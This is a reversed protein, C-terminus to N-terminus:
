FRVVAYRGGYPQYYIGGCRWVVYGYRNVRVCGGPLAGIYAGTRVIRRAAVGPYARGYPRGRVVTKKYVGGRPGRVVTRKYTGGPRRVVTRSYRAAEASQVLTGHQMIRGINGDVLCGAAFAFCALGIRLLSLRSMM